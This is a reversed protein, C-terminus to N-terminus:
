CTAYKPKVHSSNPYMEDYKKKVENMLPKNYTFCDEATFTFQENWKSEQVIFSKKQLTIKDCYDFVQNNVLKFHAVEQMFDPGQAHVKRWFVESFDQYLMYDVKSWNKYIEFNERNVTDVKLYKGTNKTHYLIDQFKWCMLRKLLVLSEDMYEVLMVLLFDQELEKLWIDIVQSDHSLDPSGIPFGTPFGLNFSMLNRSMHLGDPVCYRRKAGRATYVQEYHNLNHLYETVPDVISEPMQTVNRLKYYYFM